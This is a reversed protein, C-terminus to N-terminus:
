RQCFKSDMRPAHTLIMMMGFLQEMVGPQKQWHNLKLRQPDIGRLLYNM